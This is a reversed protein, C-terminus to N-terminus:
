RNVYHWLGSRFSEHLASVTSTIAVQYVCVLDWCCIKSRIYCCVHRELTCVCFGPLPAMCSIFATHQLCQGQFALSVFVLLAVYLYFCVIVYAITFFHQVIIMAYCVYLLTFLTLLNRSTLWWSMCSTFVFTNWLDPIKFFQLYMGRLSLFFLWIIINQNGLSSKQSLNVSLTLSVKRLHLM